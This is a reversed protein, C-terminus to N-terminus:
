SDNEQLARPQGQDESNWDLAKVVDLKNWCCQTWQFATTLCPFNKNLDANLKVKHLTALYLVGM